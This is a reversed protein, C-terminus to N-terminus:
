VPEAMHWVDPRGGIVRDLLEPYAASSFPPEVCIAPGISATSAREVLSPSLSLSLEEQSADKGFRHLLLAVAESAIERRPIAVTTLPPYAYASPEVDDVGVISIDRPVVVNRDIACRLAGMAMQDNTCFVATPRDDLQLLSEMAVFGGPISSSGSWLWRADLNVGAAALTSAFGAVRESHRVRSASVSGILGVRSHGLTLLHQAAIQGVRFFDVGVISLAPLEDREEWMCLVMPLCGWAAADVDELGVAGPMIIVGDVQRSALHRLYTRGVVEDSGTVCLFVSYGCHRAVSEIERALESYFPNTLNPVLLGLTCSQRGSLNRALMNPQYGLEEIAHRVRHRTTDDLTGNGTVVNSVTAATVGAAEAVDYITAV